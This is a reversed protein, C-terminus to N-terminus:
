YWILAYTSKDVKYQNDEIDIHAGLPKITENIPSKFVLQRFDGYDIGSFEDDHEILFHYLNPLTFCWRDQNFSFAQAQELSDLLPQDRQAVRSFFAMLTQEIEPM